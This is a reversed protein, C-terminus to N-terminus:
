HSIAAAIIFAFWTIWIDIAAFAALIVRLRYRISRLDRLTIAATPYFLYHRSLILLSARKGLM